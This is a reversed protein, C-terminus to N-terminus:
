ATVQIMAIDWHTELNYHTLIQPYCTIDQLMICTYTQYAHTLCLKWTQRFRGELVIQPASIRGWVGKLKPIKVM